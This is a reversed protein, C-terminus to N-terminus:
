EARLEGMPDTGAARWAPRLCAALTVVTLFAAMSGFTGLDFTGVEFLLGDLLRTALLAGALGLAAGPVALRLGDVLVARLVEAPRAGLALRIGTDRRRQQVSYAMLAYVGAAALLLALLAFGGLLLAQFRPQAVSERGLEALTTVEQLPVQPDVSAVRARVGEALRYPDGRTGVVLYFNRWWLNQAFPVYITPEPASGPGQYKVDGVVGVITLRDADPHPEGTQLWRGVAEGRPFWRRALTRNVIAVLPADARDAATFDRGAGLPIGLSAFYGPTVLLEEALPPAAGPAHVTGEPTFPNTMVLRHPPVAMGLGVAEVGPLAAIRSRLEELLAAVQGSDPHRGEPLALRVILADEVTTGTDVSQLRLLSRGVLGACILVTLAIAIEAVVLASRLLGRRRDTGTRAGERAAAGLAERPVQLAPMLGVLLGTGLAVAATFALVVGDVGVEDLRPVDAPLVRLLAPVGALALLLGLGGGLVALLLAEAMMQRLLRPRRAGLTARLALEPARATARALLLNAVNMAALLLVLAVALLLVVLRGRADAVLEDRQDAVSYAWQPPSGPYRDKVAAAVAALQARAEELSAGPALRAV